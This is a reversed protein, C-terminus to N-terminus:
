SPVAARRRELRLVTAARFPLDGPLAAGTALHYLVDPCIDVDGPWVLTQAEADIRVRGFTRPDSLPSYIGGRAVMAGFDLEARVGDEFEVLLRHGGNHVVHTPRPHM